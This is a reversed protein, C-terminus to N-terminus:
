EEKEPFSGLLIVVDVQTMGVEIWGVDWRASVREGLDAYRDPRSLSAQASTPVFVLEAM